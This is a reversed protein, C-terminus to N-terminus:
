GAGGSTGFSVAPCRGTSRPTLRHSPSTLFTMALTYGGISAVVLAGNPNGIM